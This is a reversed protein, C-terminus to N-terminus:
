DAAGRLKTDDAFERLTCKVGDDLCNLFINFMILGVILGQPISITAQLCVKCDQLWQDGGEPGLMVEGQDVEGHQSSRTVKEKM